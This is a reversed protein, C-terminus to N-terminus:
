FLETVRRPAADVVHTKGDTVLKGVDLEVIGLHWCLLVGAAAVIAVAVVVRWVRALLLGLALGAVIAGGVTLADM